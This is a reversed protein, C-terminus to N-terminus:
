TEPNWLNEKGFAQEARELTRSSDPPTQTSRENTGDKQRWAELEEATPPRRNGELVVTPPEVEPKSDGLVSVHDSEERDVVRGAIGGPPSGARNEYWSAVDGPRSAPGNRVVLEEDGFTEDRPPEETAPTEVEPRRSVEVGADAGARGDPLEPLYQGDM